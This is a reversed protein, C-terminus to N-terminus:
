EAFGSTVEGAWRIPLFRHGIRKTQLKYLSREGGPVTVGFLYNSRLSIGWFHGFRESKLSKDDWIAWPMKTTSSRKAKCCSKRLAELTPRIKARHEWSSSGPYTTPEARNPPAKWISPNPFIGAFIRKPFNFFFFFYLLHKCIYIYVTNKQVLSIVIYITHQHNKNQQKKTGPWPKPHKDLVAEPLLM